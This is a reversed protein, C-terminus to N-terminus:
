SWRAQRLKSSPFRDCDPRMRGGQLSDPSLAPSHTAIAVQPEQSKPSNHWAWGVALLVAAAQALGILGIAAWNWPRSRSSAPTLALPRQSM